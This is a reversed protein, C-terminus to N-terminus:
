SVSSSPVDLLLRSSVHDTFEQYNPRNNWYDEKAILVYHPALMENTVPVGDPTYDLYEVVQDELRVLYESSSDAYIQVPTDGDVLHQEHWTRQELDLAYRLLKGTESSELELFLHHDVIRGSLYLRDYETITPIPAIELSQGNQPDYRFVAHADKRPIFYIVGDTSDLVFENEKCPFDMPQFRMTDEQFVSLTQSDTERDYISFLLGLSCHGILSPSVDAEFSFVATARGTEFDTKMLVPASESGTTEQVLFYLEGDRSVVGTSPLIDQTLPLFIVQRDQGDLGIRYLTGQAVSQELGHRLAGPSSMKLIYVFHGDSMAEAGGYVSPLFSTDTEDRHTSNIQDSLFVTQRSDYDYYIINGTADANTVVRYFGNSTAGGPCLIWASCLTDYEPVVSEETLANSGGPVLHDQSSCACLLIACALISALATFFRSNRKM